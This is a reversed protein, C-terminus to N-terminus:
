GRLGRRNRWQKLGSQTFLKDSSPKLLDNLIDAVLEDRWRPKKKPDYNEHICKYMRELYFDFDARLPKKPDGLIMTAMRRLNLIGLFPGSATGSIRSVLLDRKGFVGRERLECVLPVRKLAKIADSFQAAKKELKRLDDLSFEGLAQDYSDLSHLDLKLGSELRVPDPCLM